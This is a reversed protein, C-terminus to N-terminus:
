GSGDGRGPPLGRQGGFGAPRGADFFSQKNQGVAEVVPEPDAVEGDNTGFPEGAGSM